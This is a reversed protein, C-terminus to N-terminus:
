RSIKFYKARTIFCVKMMNYCLILFDLNGENDSSNNNFDTNKNKERGKRAKKNEKNIKNDDLSVHNQFMAAGNIQLDHSNRNIDNQEHGPLWESVVNETTTEVEFETFSDIIKQPRRNLPVEISKNVAVPKPHRRNKKFNGVPIDDHNLISQNNENNQHIDEALIKQKENTLRLQKEKLVQEERSGKGESDQKQKDDLSHWDYDQETYSTRRKLGDVTDLSRSMRNEKKRQVVLATDTSQRLRDEKLKRLKEQASRALKPAGPLENEDLSDPSSMSSEGKGQMPYENFSKHRPSNGTSVPSLVKAHPIRICPSHNGHRGVPSVPSLIEPTVNATILNTPIAPTSNSLKKM